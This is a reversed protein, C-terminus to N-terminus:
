LNRQHSFHRYGRSRRTYKYWYYKVVTGEPMDEKRVDRIVDTPERDDFKASSRPQRDVIDRVADKCEFWEEIGATKSRQLAERTDGYAKYWGWTWIEFARVLRRRRERVDHCVYVRTRYEEQSSSDEQGQNEDEIVVCNFEFMAIAAYNRIILQWVSSFNRRLSPIVKRRVFIWHLTYM